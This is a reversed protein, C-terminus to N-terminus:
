RRSRGSVTSCQGAACAGRSSTSTLAALGVTRLESFRSSTAHANRQEVRVPPALAAVARLRDHRAEDAGRDRVARRAHWVGDRGIRAVARGCGSRLQPRPVPSQRHQRFLRSWPSGARPRLADVGTWYLTTNFSVVGLTKSKGTALARAVPNPRYDLKQMADLVRKITDDRVHDSGNIVRSVTQHSVGALKAVDAMVPAKRPSRGGGGTETM